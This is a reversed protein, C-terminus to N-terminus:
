LFQRKTRALSVRRERVLVECAMVPMWVVLRAAATAKKEQKKKDAQSFLEDNLGRPGHSGLGRPGVECDGQVRCFVM